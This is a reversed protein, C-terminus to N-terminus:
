NQSSKTRHEATIVLGSLQPSRLLAGCLRYMQSKLIIIIIIIYPVYTRGDFILRNSRLFIKTPKAVGVCSLHCHAQVASVGCHQANM